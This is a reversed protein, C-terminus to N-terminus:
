DLMGGGGGGRALSGMVLELADDLGAELMGLLLQCLLQRLNHLM